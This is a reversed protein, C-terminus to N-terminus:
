VIHQRPALCHATKSGSLASNQLWVIHQRPALSHATKFGSLTTKRTRIRTRDKGKVRSRDMDKATNPAQHSYCNIDPCVCTRDALAESAHLGGLPRKWSRTRSASTGTCPKPYAYICTCLLKWLAEKHTCQHWSRVGTTRMTFFTEFIAKSFGWFDLM